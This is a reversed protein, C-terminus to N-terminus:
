AARNAARRRPAKWKAPAEAPPLVAVRLLLLALFGSTAFAVRKV